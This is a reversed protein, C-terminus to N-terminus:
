HWSVWLHIESGLTRRWSGQRRPESTAQLWPFNHSLSPKAKTSRCLVASQLVLPATRAALQLLSFPPKGSQMALFGLCLCTHLPEGRSGCCVHSPCSPVWVALTNTERSPRFVHAWGQERSNIPLRKCECGANLYYKLAFAPDKILHCKAFWDLGWAATHSFTAAQISPEKVRALRQSVLIVMKRSLRIIVVQVFIQLTYISIFSYIQRLQDLFTPSQPLQFSRLPHNTPFSGTFNEWRQQRWTWLLKWNFTLYLCFM